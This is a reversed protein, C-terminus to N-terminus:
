VVDDFLDERHPHANADLRDEDLRFDLVTPVPLTVKAIVGAADAHKKLHRFSEVFPHGTRYAIKGSVQMGRGRTTTAHFQRGQPM